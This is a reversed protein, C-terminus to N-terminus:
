DIWDFYILYDIWDELKSINENEYVKINNCNLRYLKRTESYPKTLFTIKYANRIEIFLKIYKKFLDIAKRDDIDVAFWERLKSDRDSKGPYISLENDERHIEMLVKNNKEFVIIKPTMDDYKSIPNEDMNNPDYVKVEVM